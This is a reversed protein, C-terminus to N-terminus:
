VEFDSARFGSISFRIYEGGRKVKSKCASVGRFRKDDIKLVASLVDIVLKLCNDIDMDRALGFDFRIALDGDGAAALQAKLESRSTLLRYHVDTKFVKAAASLWRKGSWIKNTSIPKVGDLTIAREKLKGM